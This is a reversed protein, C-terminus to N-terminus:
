KKEVEALPTTHAQSMIDEIVQPEILGAAQLIQAVLYGEPVAGEVHTTENIVSRPVGMVNYRQALHPFEISEVMDARIHESQFALRHALSVASPCYPCTPTVFIQIHIPTKVLDVLERIEPSFGADGSSVMLIDEVLTTFEYGAPIGYFRMGYDKPGVLALAPIKDIGYQKVVAKDLVFNYTEVTIKDSLGAVESAIDENQQCFDCAITQTFVLLKVPDKLRKGFEEKLFQRDKEKLLAM